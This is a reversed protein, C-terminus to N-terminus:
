EGARESRIRFVPLYLPIRRPSRIERFTIDLLLGIRLQPLDCDVVESFLRLDTQDAHSVIAPVWPASSGHIGPLMSIGFSYLTFPAALVAWALDDACCARCRPKPPHNWYWCSQCQM